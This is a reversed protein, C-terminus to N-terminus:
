GGSSPEKLSLIAKVRGAKLWDSINRFDRLYLGYNSPVIDDKEIVEAAADLVVAIAAQADDRFVAAMEAPMLALCNSIPPCGKRMAIQNALAEAVLEVLEGKM